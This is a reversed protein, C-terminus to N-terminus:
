IGMKKKYEVVLDYVKHPHPLSACVFEEEMCRKGWAVLKPCEAEISFKGFTELTHFWYYLPLFAIDLFGLTEGGFYPNSKLEGELMKIRDIFEKKGAEQVEGNAAWVKYSSPHVMKDIFDAWFKAKARQYPDAPLLPCRDKWVEDIYEVIILSECVPKGNHILVPIKKHVPNVKLLLSSKSQTLDEEKIQYEIGKAALALRVRMVFPSGSFDLLVIHDSNAM